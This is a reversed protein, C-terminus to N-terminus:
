SPAPSPPSADAVALGFVPPPDFDRAEDAAKQRVVMVIAPMLAEDDVDAVALRQQNGVVGIESFTDREAYAVAHAHPAQIFPVIETSEQVPCVAVRELVLLAAPNEIPAPRVRLRRNGTKSRGSSRHPRPGPSVRM